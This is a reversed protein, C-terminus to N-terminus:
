SSRCGLRGPVEFRDPLLEAYDDFTVPDETLAGGPLPVQVDVGDIALVVERVTPASSITLVVQGVAVPLLDASLPTDLAIDIEVAGEVIGVLHLEADPPIASSRGVARAAEDPGAALALLLSHILTEPDESCSEETAEPVLRDGTLWFIVAPRGPEGGHTAASDADADPELLGYPVADDEIRTVSGGGPLGCSTLVLVAAAACAARRPRRRVSRTLSATM